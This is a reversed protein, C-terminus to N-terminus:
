HRAARCEGHDALVEIVRCDAIRGGECHKVMRALEDRLASLRAIKDKVAELQQEAIRDADECPREPADTMRLLERIAAQSFGLERSHRIFNLRDLERRGYLRQNGQSRAPKPMLGIDEYYRITPVKCGTAKSLQGISLTKESM